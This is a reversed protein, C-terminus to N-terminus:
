LYELPPTLGGGVLKYPSTSLPQALGGSFMQSKRFRVSFQQRGWGVKSFFCQGHCEQLGSTWLDWISHVESQLYTISQSKMGSTSDDVLCTILKSTLFMVFDEDVILNYNKHSVM